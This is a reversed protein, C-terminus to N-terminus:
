KEYDYELFQPEDIEFERKIINYLRTGLEHSPNPAVIQKGKFELCYIGMIFRSDIGLRRLTQLPTKEKIDTM